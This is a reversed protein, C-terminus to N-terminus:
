HYISYFVFCFIQHKMVNTPLSDANSSVNHLNSKNQDSESEKEEEENETHEFSQVQQQVTTEMLLTIDSVFYEISKVKSNLATLISSVNQMIKLNNKHKVETSIKDELQFEGLDESEIDYNKSEFEDDNTMEEKLFIILYPKLIFFFSDLNM